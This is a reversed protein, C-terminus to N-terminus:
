LVRIILEDDGAVPCLMLPLSTNLVGQTNGHTPPGVQVAPAQIEVINGAVLGHRSLMPGVVSNKAAAYWDKTALSVAEIVATGKAKRDVIEISESGVLMRAEVQNGLDLTFSEMPAVLGHLSFTTNEASVVLPKQFGTLVQTPLPTDAIPGLLGTMTFRFRPIQKPTESLTVTGRAGLLVHNVGDLNMFITAAEQGGSVPQYEVKVGATVTESLGCARLMVGYGPVAGAAGAGAIEISGEVRVNIGALVSGQDGFYPLMLDRSVQDGQLPTVSVDSMVLANAAGTPAANVGYTAEIKALAALKRYYRRAM